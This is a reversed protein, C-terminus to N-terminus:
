FYRQCVQLGRDRFTRHEGLLSIISIRRIGDWRIRVPINGNKGALYFLVVAGLIQGILTAYGAGAFGIQCGFILIPDLIMNVLMGAMMGIMGDRVNGCLRMQNYLTTSFLNFPVSCLIIRLYSMTYYQLSESADGGLWGAVPRAWLILPIMIVVSVIIALVIGTSAIKEAEEDEHEGLKRSMTNGSGYGFWFGLAQIFSVFSYVVGIAATMSKHNLLGIFFTDTLNYLVNILMGIITPISMKILLPPIAETLIKQRRIEKQDM